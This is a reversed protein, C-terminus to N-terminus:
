QGCSAVTDMHTALHVPVIRVPFLVSMTLCFVFCIVLITFTCSIQQQRGRRYLHIHVESLQRVTFLALSEVPVANSWM